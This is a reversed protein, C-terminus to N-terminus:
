EILQLTSRLSVQAMMITYLKWGSYYDSEPIEEHEEETGVDSDSNRDTSLNNMGVGDVSDDLPDPSTQIKENLKATAM